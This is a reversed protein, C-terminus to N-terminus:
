IEYAVLKSDFIWATNGGDIRYQVSYTYTGASVVDLFQLSSPPVFNATAIDSNGVQITVNCRSIETTDRRIRFNAGSTSSVSGSCGITPQNVNFVGVLMVNVPRGSTTITVSLNTADVFSTSTTSLTGSSNSIAVGRVGVTTGTARTYDDIIANAGTSTMASAISDASSFSLNGSSDSTMYQTSGPVAGPLTLSYSSALGVPAKVTVATTAGASYPFVKLDSSNLKGYTTADSKFIFDPTSFSASAPAALGSIGNVSSVNITSGTSLQIATGSSNNYYLDGNAVYLCRQFSSALSAAQNSYCTTKLNTANFGGFSLDANINMGSPTVPTGKGSSHDHADIATFATNLQTAWTPGATVGVDPLTLVMYSTTAMNFCGCLLTPMSPM